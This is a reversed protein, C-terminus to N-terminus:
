PLVVYTDEEIVSSGVPITMVATPVNTLANTTVKRPSCVVQCDSKDVVPAKARTGSVGMTVKGLDKPNM